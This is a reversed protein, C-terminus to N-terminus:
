YVFTGKFHFFEQLTLKLGMSVDISSLLLFLGTIETAYYTRPPNQTFFTLYKRARIIDTATNKTTMM